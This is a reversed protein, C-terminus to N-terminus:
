RRSSSSRESVEAAAARDLGMMEFSAELRVPDLLKGVLERIAVTMLEDLAALDETRALGHSLATM